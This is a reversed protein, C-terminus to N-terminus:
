ERSSHYREKIVYMENDALEVLEHITKDPFQSADAFGYAFSVGDILDGKWENTQQELYYIYKEKSMLPHFMIAIFEDGGIRYL